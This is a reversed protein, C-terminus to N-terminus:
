ENACREELVIDGGSCYSYFLYFTWYDSYCQKCLDPEHGYASYLRTTAVSQCSSIISCNMVPWGNCVTTFLQVSQAAHLCVVVWILWVLGKGLNNTHRGASCM